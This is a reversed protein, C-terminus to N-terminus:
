FNNNYLYYKDSKNIYALCQSTLLTLILSNQLIKVNASGGEKSNLSSAFNLRELIM